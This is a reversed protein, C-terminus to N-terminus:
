TTDAAPPVGGGYFAYITDLAEQATDVLSFLKLDDADIMGEEVFYEWDIARRWWERGVLVIPMVPMKGTQVLCLAEFLEDMTGFGGPFAVMARARLMFHMKRVAFYRFQFCLEPSIYPNPKQEMPLTINLGMSLQGEDHAGRNAAEMTGPGGGTVVVFDRRHAEMFDQSVMRAFRRAEEYYKSQEVQRRARKIRRELARSKEKSKEREALLDDLQQRARDPALIRASGFVVITSEIKYERLRVEPKQLELLLRVPRQEDENLFERDEYALRYTPGEMLSRQLKLRTRNNRDDKPSM